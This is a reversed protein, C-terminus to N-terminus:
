VLEFKGNIGYGPVMADDWCFAYCPRNRFTAVMRRYYEERSGPGDSARINDFLGDEAGFETVWIPLGFRMYSNILDSAWGTEWGQMTWGDPAKTYPHVAIADVPLRGVEDLYTPQGSALGGAVVVGDFFVESAVHLLTSFRRPTLTWSSGSKLDPENGIQWADITPYMKKLREFKERYSLGKPSGLTRGDCVALVKIGLRNCERIFQEYWVQEEDQWLPIRAFDYKAIDQPLFKHFPDINIGLGNADPM